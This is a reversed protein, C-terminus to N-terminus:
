VFLILYFIQAPPECECKFVCSMSLIGSDNRSSRVGMEVGLTPYSSYFAAKQTNISYNSM